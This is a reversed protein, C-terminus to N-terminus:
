PQGGRAEIPQRTASAPAVLAVQVDGVNTGTPGTRVLDGLAGFFSWADNADLYSMPDLGRARARTATDSDALAGAADTPVTSAM